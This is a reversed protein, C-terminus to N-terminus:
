AYAIIQTNNCPLIYPSPHIAWISSKNDGTVHTVWIKCLLYILKWLLLPLIITEKFYQMNCPNARSDEPYITLSLIEMLAHFWSVKILWYLGFLNLLFVAYINQSHQSLSFLVTHLQFKVCHFVSPSTKFIFSFLTAVTAFAPLCLLKRCYIKSHWHICSGLSLIFM